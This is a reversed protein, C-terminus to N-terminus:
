TLFLSVVIRTEGGVQNILSRRNFAEKSGLSQIFTSKAKQLAHLLCFGDVSFGVESFVSSILARALYYLSICVVGVSVFLSCM